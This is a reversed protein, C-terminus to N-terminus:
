MVMLPPHPSLDSFDPLKNLYDTVFRDNEDKTKTSMKEYIPELATKNIMFPLYSFLLKDGQFQGFIQREEIQGLCQDTLICRSLWADANFKNANDSLLVSRRKALDVRSGFFQDIVLKSELSFSRQFKELCKLCMAYEFIVEDKKFAKEIVYPVNNDLLSIDCAICNSFPGEEYFSYFVPPIDVFEDMIQLSPLKM